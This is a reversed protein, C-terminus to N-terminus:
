LISIQQRANEKLPDRISEVAEFARPELFVAIATRLNYIEAARPRIEEVLLLVESVM